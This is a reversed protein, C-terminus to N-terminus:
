VNDKPIQVRSSYWLVQITNQLKLPYNKRGLIERNPVSWCVTSFPGTTGVEEARRGPEMLNVFGVGANDDVHTGCWVPIQPQDLSSLEM